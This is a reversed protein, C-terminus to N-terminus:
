PNTPRQISTNDTFNEIRIRYSTNKIANEVKDQPRKMNVESLNIRDNEKKEISFGPDGVKIDVRNNAELVGLGNHFSHNGDENKEMDLSGMSFLLVFFAMLNIMLDNFTCLWSASGFERIEQNKKKKKRMGDIRGKHDM